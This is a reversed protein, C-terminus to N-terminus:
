SNRLLVSKRTRMEIEDILTYKRKRKRKQASENIIWLQAQGIVWAIMKRLPCVCKARLVRNLIFVVAMVIATPRSM